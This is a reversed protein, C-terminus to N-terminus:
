GAGQWRLRRSCRCATPSEGAARGSLPLSYINASGKEEMTYYVGTQRGCEMHLEGPSSVAAGRGLAEKGGGRSDM